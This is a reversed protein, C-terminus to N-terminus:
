GNFPQGDFYAMECDVEFEVQDSVDFAVRLGRGSLRRVGFDRIEAISMPLALQNKVEMRAVGVLSSDTLRSRM